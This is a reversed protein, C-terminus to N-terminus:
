CGWTVQRESSKRGMLVADHADFLQPREPEVAIRHRPAHPVSPQVPEVAADVGDAVRDCRSLTSIEGGDQGAAVAGHQTM